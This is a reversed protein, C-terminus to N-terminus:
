CSPSLHGIKIKKQKKDEPDRYFNAFIKCKGVTKEKNYVYNLM